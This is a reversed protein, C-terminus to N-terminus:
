SSKTPCLEHQDINDNIKVYEIDRFLFCGFFQYQILSLFIKINQVSSQNVIHRSNSRKQRFLRVKPITTPINHGWHPWTGGWNGLGLFFFTFIFGLRWFSSFYFNHCFCSICFFFNLLISDFLCITHGWHPWTPRVGAWEPTRGQRVIRCCRPM